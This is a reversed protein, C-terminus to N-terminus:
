APLATGTLDEAAAWLRAATRDDRMRRNLRVPGTPGVLGFRGTPGYYGDEVARPDAAAFLMPEAGEPPLQSPVFPFRAISSRHVADKGLSAGATQLNTQTFGPHAANSRLAWGRQMSVRALQRALLLDALKSQAYSRTPSYRRRTWQLDDFRIRGVAAMGSSMTTVRGEPAALLLPLLRNTLAFPGLYNTGLQLEFGDETEMRTPPTMVGANNVLTDLHPLDRGLDDAFAQVSALSALDLIRVEASAGPHAAQIEALAKEGKEATRVALVVHAGAAALREAAERGTGSNAGTVVVTRGTQDPVVYM